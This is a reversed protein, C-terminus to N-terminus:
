FVISAYIALRQAMPMPRGDESLMKRLGKRSRSLRTKVTGERDGQIESIERVSFGSVEFLLLAERQKEPLHQIAKLLFHIDLAVEPGTTKAQIKELATDEWEGRFKQRRRAQRVLNNVTGILYGLLKEKDEIRAFNRLAILIAEQVLDETELLGFARSRCYRVFREHLPEYKLLFAAHAKNKM